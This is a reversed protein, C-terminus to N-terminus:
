RLDDLNSVLESSIYNDKNRKFYDLIRGEAQEPDIDSHTSIEHHSIENFDFNEGVRLLINKKSIAQKKNNLSSSSGMLIQPFPAIGINFILYENEDWNLNEMLIYIASDRIEIHKSKYSHGITKSEAVVTGLNNEYIRFPVKAITDGFKSKQYYRFYNGLYNKKLLVQSPNQSTHPLLESREKKWEDWEEIEVELFCLLTNLKKDKPTSPKTWYTQLTKGSIWNFTRYKPISKLYDIMDEFSKLSETHFLRNLENEGILWQNEVLVPNNIVQSTVKYNIRKAIHTFVTRNYESWNLGNKQTNIVSRILESNELANKIKSPIM